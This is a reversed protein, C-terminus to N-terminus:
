KTEILDNALNRRGGRPRGPGAPAEPAAPAAGRRGTRAPPAAQPAPAPEPAPTPAPARSADTQPAAPAAAKSARSPRQPKVEAEDDDKYKDKLKERIEPFRYNDDKNLVEVDGYLYNELVSAMYEDTMMQAQAVEYPDTFMDPGYFEAPMPMEEMVVVSYKTDRGEGTKQIQINKGKVPDLMNGGTRSTLITNIAKLSTINAQLIKVRGDVIFQKVLETDISGDKAYIGEIQNKAQKWEFELGPVWYDYKVQSAVKPMKSKEDKVNLLAALAKDTKAATKAEDLIEDIVDKQLSPDLLKPSIFKKGNIWWIPIELYYIGDMTPLPDLIRFDLPKEIKSLTIWNKSAGGSRSNLKEQQEKLKDLNLGPM